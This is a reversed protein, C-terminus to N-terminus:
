KNSPPTPHFKPIPFHRTTHQSINLTEQAGFSMADDKILSFSASDLTGFIAKEREKKPRILNSM